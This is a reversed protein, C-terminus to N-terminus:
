RDQDHAAELEKIRQRDQTREVQLGQIIEVAQQLTLPAAATNNNAPNGEFTSETADYVNVGRMNSLSTPSDDLSLFQDNM